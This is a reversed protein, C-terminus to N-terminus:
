VHSTSQMLVFVYKKTTFHFLGTTQCMLETMRKYVINASVWEDLIIDFNQFSCGKTAAKM